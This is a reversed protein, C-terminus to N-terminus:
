PWSDSAPSNCSHNSALDDEYGIKQTRQSFICDVPLRRQGPPLAKAIVIVLIVRVGNIQLQVSRARKDIGCTYIGQRMAHRLGISGLAQTRCRRRQPYLGVFNSGQEISKKMDLSQAKLVLDGPGGFFRRVADVRIPQM